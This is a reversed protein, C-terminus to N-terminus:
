LQMVCGKKIIKEGEELMTRIVVDVSYNQATSKFVKCLITDQSLLLIKNM